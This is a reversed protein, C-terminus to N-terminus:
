TLISHNRLRHNILKLLIDTRDGPRRVFALTPHFRAVEM